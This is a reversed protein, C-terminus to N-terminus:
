KLHEVKNKEMSFIRSRPLKVKFINKGIEKEVENKKLKRPLKRNELGKVSEEDYTGWKPNKIISLNFKNIVDLQENRARTSKSGNHTKIKESLFLGSLNNGNQSVQAIKEGLEPIIYLSDFSAKLGNGFRSYIKVSDNLNIRIRKSNDSSNVSLLNNDIVSNFTNDIISDNYNVLPNITSKNMMFTSNDKSILSTNNNNLNITPLSKNGLQKLMQTYDYKSYKGFKQHYDSSGSKSKNGEILTVGTEPTILEYNSGAPQIPIRETKLYNFSETKIQRKNLKDVAELDETTINTRKDQANYAQQNSKEQQIQLKNIIPNTVPQKEKIDFRILKIIHM